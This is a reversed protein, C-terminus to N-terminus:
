VKRYEIKRGLREAFSIGKKMGATIGHDTYVVTKDALLTWLLGAFIGLNREEAVADNLVGPQTYLAHSAFPFEGQTFCDHMCRRVYTLNRAEDGAFPSEVVVLKRDKYAPATASILIRLLRRTVGLILRLPQIM